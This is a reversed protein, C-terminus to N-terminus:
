DYHRISLDAHVVRNTLPPNLLWHRGRDVTVLQLAESLVDIGLGAGLATLLGEHALFSYSSTYISLSLSPFLAYLHRDLSNSFLRGCASM